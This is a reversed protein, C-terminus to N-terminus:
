IGKQWDTASRRGIQASSNKSLKENLNNSTKVLSQYIVVYYKIVDDM